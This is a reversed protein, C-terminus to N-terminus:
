NAKMGSQRVVERWQTVTRRIERALADPGDGAPEVGLLAFRRLLDPDHLALAAQAALKQVIPEPTGAPALLATWNVVDFGKLATTEAVTPVAPVAPSRALSTVAILKLNGAAVHPVLPVVMSFMADVHGGLLDTVAKASGAYPVDTWAPLGMQQQFMIGTLHSVTGTGTSAITLDAGQRKSLAVFEDMTAVGLDRRVALAGPARALMTVPAFSTVPDYGPDRFTSANSTLTDTVVLLTYGDPPAKAVYNMGINTSGGVRQEVVFSANMRAGLAQALSRAVVDTTGGASSPVILRVPKSPYAEADEARVSVAQAALLVCLVAGLLQGGRYRRIM